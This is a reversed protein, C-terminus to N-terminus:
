GGSFAIYYEITSIGCFLQAKRRTVAPATPKGCSNKELDYFLQIDIFFNLM